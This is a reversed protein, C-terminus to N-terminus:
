KNKSKVFKKPPKLNEFYNEIALDYADILEKNSLSKHQQTLTPNNILFERQYKLVSVGEKNAFILLKRVKAKFEMERLKEPSIPKEAFSTTKM